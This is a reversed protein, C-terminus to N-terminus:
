LGVRERLWGYVFTEQEENREAIEVYRAGQLVNLGKLLVTVGEAGRKAIYSRLAAATAPGVNGDVKLDPYFKARANFVNLIRQLFTAAVGPGMNAGTDVVEIGIEVNIDLILTFNPEIIFLHRYVQRAEAETLAQVDAATTPRNRWHALTDLTIGFKTPGGKDAPNNTYKGGGERQIVGSIVDDTTKMRRALGACDRRAVGSGLPARLM